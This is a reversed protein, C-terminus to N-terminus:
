GNAKHSHLFLFDFHKEEVGVIEAFTYAFHEYFAREAFQLYFINVYVFM